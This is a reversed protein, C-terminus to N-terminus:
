FPEQEALDEALLPQNTLARACSRRYWGILDSLETCRDVVLQALLVDRPPVRGEYCESVQGISPHEVMLSSCAVLLAHELVGLIATQPADEIEHVDPIEILGKM